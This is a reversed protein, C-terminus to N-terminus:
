LTNILSDRMLMSYIDKHDFSRNPQHMYQALKSKSFKNKRSYEQAAKLEHEHIIPTDKLIFPFFVTAFLITQYDYSNILNIGNETTQNANFRDLLSLGRINHKKMKKAVILCNTSCELHLIKTKLVDVVLTILCYLNCCGNKNIKSARDGRIIANFEQTATELYKEVADYRRAKFMVLFTLASHALVLDRAKISSNDPTEILLSEADYLFKLSSNYDGIIYLIYGINCYMLVRGKWTKEPVKNSFFLKLDTKLAKTIVEFAPGYIEFQVFVIFLSNCRNIFKRYLRPFRHSSKILYDYLLKELIETYQIVQSISQEKM